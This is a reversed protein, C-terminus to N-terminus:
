ALILLGPIPRGRVIRLAVCAYAWGLAALFGSLLGFTILFAYFLVSPILTAEILYPVLRRTVAIVVSLKSPHMRWTLESGTLEQGAVEPRTPEPRVETTTPVPM